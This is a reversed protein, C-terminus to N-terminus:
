DNKFAGCHKCYEDTGTQIQEWEHPCEITTLAIPTHDGLWGGTVNFDIYEIADLVSMGDRKVLVEVMKDYDYVALAPQGCRSGIGILADEFGDWVIADPNLEALREKIEEFRKNM